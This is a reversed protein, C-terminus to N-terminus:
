VASSGASVCTDVGAVASDAVVAAVVALLAAEAVLVGGGCHSLLQPSCMHPRTSQQVKASATAQVASRMVKRGCACTCPASAVHARALLPSGALLMCETCQACRPRVNQHRRRQCRCTSYNYIDTKM